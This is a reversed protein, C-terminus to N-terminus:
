KQMGRTNLLSDIDIPTPTLQDASFTIKEGHQNVLIPGDPGMAASIYQPEDKSPVSIDDGCKEKLLKGVKMESEQKILALSKNKNITIEVYYNTYGHDTIKIFADHADRVNDPVVVNDYVALFIRNYRVGDQSDRKVRRVLAGYGPEAKEFYEMNPTLLIAFNHTPIDEQVSMMNETFQQGEVVDMRGTGIGIIGQDIDYSSIIYNVIESISDVNELKMTIKM